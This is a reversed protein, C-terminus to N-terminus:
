LPEDVLSSSGNILEAAFGPCGDSVDFSADSWHVPYLCLLIADFPSGGGSYDVMFLFWYLEKATGLLVMM